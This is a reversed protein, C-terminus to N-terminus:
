RRGLAADRLMPQDFEPRGEAWSVRSRMDRMSIPGMEVEGGGYVDLGDRVARLFSANGARDEHVDWAGMSLGLLYPRGEVSEIFVLSRQGNKFTAEGVVESIVGDLEGGRTHFVVREGRRVDGKLVDTVQLTVETEIGNTPHAVGRQQVVQGVVVLTSLRAQDEVSLGIVTSAIATSAALAAAAAGLAIWGKRQKTM